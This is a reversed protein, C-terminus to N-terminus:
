GAPFGHLPVLAVRFGTSSDHYSPSSGYRGAARCRYASDTYSGGRVARNPGWSDWGSSRRAWASDKSPGGPDTVPGQEYDGQWDLCWEGVNGHMDYLGLPNPQYSGVACPRGLRPGVAGGGYPYSGDFNAQGYSLSDYPASFYFPKSPSIAGGRCSYEWQAESPLSYQWGGRTTREWANLKQIFEQVEEWSVHEVPFDDTDLGKVEDKGGGNECFWSPNNGMVAKWQRQTVAFVGLWFSRTLEVEHQTEDGAGGAGRVKASRGKEELPSGMLFRGAPVLALRMGISNVREVVVPQVGAQLLDLYRRPMDGRESVPVPLVRRTLRLLEARRPGESEELWDALASWTPEDDPAERLATLLAEVM